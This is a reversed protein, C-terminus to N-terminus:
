KIGTDYQKSSQLKAIYKSYPPTICGAKNKRLVSFQSNTITKPEMHIKSNKKDRHFICFYFHVPIKIAITNFKYIAKHPISVKVNNLMGTWLCPSDKL